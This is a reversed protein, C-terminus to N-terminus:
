NSVNLLGDLLIWIPIEELEVARQIDNALVTDTQGVCDMAKQGIFRSSTMPSVNDGHCNTVGEGGKVGLLLKNGHKKINDVTHKKVSIIVFIALKKEASSNRLVFALTMWPLKEILLM